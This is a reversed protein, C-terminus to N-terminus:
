RKPKEYVTFAGLRCFPGPVRSPPSLYHFRDGDCLRNGFPEVVLVDGPDLGPCPHHLTNVWVKRGGPALVLTHDDVIRLNDTSGIAVCHEIGTATMGAVPDEPPRAAGVSTAAVLALAARIV